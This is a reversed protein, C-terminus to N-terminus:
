MVKLFDIIRKSQYRYNFTSEVLERGKIGVKISLQYNSLVYDMKNAFDDIDDPEALFANVNDTLYLPIEGVRTVM